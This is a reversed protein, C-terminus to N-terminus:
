AASPIVRISDYDFTLCSGPGALCARAYASQADRVIEEVSGYRSDCLLVGISSTFRDDHLDPPQNDLRQQIRRAIMGPIDRGPAQEVLIYFHDLEFRAITDTPRVCARLGNGLSRAFRDAQDEGHEHRILEYREPSIALVAFLRQGQGQLSHLASDLRNLFFGRNYLGTTQDWPTGDLAAAETLKSTRTLREVLSSLQVASVPKLMILDPEVALSEALEPYATVVVVPVRQLREDLRMHQLINVGSIGPLSLDLLVIDPECAALREMALQGNTAIETRYGALDMVHRFLAAIDREDEVILVFPKEM